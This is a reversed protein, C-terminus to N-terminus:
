KSKKRNVLLVVAGAAALLIASLGIWRISAGTVPLYEQNTQGAANTNTNPAPTPAPQNGQPKGQPTNGVTRNQNITDGPKGPTGANGTNGANNTNSPASGSNNKSITTSENSNSKGAGENSIPILRKEVKEAHTDVNNSPQNNNSNSNSNGSDASNDSDSSDSTNSNGSGSNGSNGSNSKESNSNGSKNSDSNDGKDGSGGDWSTNGNTGIALTLDIPRKDGNQDVYTGTIRYDGKDLKSTDITTDGDSDKSGGLGRLRDLLSHDITKGNISDPKFGTRKDNASSSSTSSSNGKDDERDLLGKLRSSLDSKSETRRESSNLLGGRSSSSSSDAKSSSGDAKSSSSDAKNLLSSLKPLDLKEGDSIIQKLLDLAPGSTNVIGRIAKLPPAVGELTRLVAPDISLTDGSNIDILKGGNGARDIIGILGEAIRGVDVQNAGPIALSIADGIAGHLEVTEKPQEVAQASVSPILLASIATLLAIPTHKPM